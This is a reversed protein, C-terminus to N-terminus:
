EDDDVPGDDAPFYRVTGAPFGGGYTSPLLDPREKELRRGARAVGEGTRRAEQGVFRSWNYRTALATAWADVRKMFDAASVRDSKHPHADIQILIEPKGSLWHKTPIVSAIRVPVRQIGDDKVAFWDSGDIDPYAYAPVDARKLAKLLLKSAPHLPRDPDRM